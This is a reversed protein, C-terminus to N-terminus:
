RVQANSGQPERDPESSPPHEWTSDSRAEDAAVPSISCPCVPLQVSWERDGGYVAFTAGIYQMTQGCRPCVKPQPSSSNTALFEQIARRLSGRDRQRTSGQESVPVIGSFGSITMPSVVEMFVRAFKRVSITRWIAGTGEQEGAQCIEPSCDIRGSHIM